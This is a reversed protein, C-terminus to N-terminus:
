ALSRAGRVQGALSPPRPTHELAAGRARRRVRGMNPQPDRVRGNQRGNAGV